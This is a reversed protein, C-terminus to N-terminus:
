LLKMDRLITRRSVGLAIALDNATPAAGQAEAEALLRRLIRRRRLAPDAVQSDAPTSITWSIEVYDAPTLKRGAPTGARVLRTPAVQSHAAVATLLKRNLPVREYFLNAEEGTLLAAIEGMAAETQVLHALATEAEGRAQYVAYAVFHVWQRLSSRVTGETALLSLMEEVHTQAQSLDGAALRLLALGGVTEMLFHAQGLERWITYAASLAEGAAALRNAELLALGQGHLNYAESM